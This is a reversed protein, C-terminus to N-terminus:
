DALDKVASADEGAGAEGFDALTKRIPVPKVFKAVVDRTDNVALQEFLFGFQKEWAETLAKRNAEPMDWFAKKFPGVAKKRTKYLFQEETDKEKREEACHDKVWTNVEEHLAPPIKEFAINQFSTALHVECTEYEPFKSFASEPLTSAGHQVAGGLGYDKRSILSLKKLTDFDVAVKAISGDPLVVGGHSTGTQLSIKSLGAANPDVRQLEERYLELYARLEEETSNHGGVEGIEGGISIQVGAPQNARIFATFDACLKSNIKQQERVTPQSLDVLTSTDIDINYFGAASAERILDQIAKIEPEPNAAYKKASVQFHDGQIFVPGNWGEAIAAALISSVYESPRQDTYNMESRAIEFILAGVKRAKAARLAARASDFGMVRLNMAPVTFPKEVLGKGRALYLENISAPVIGLTRATEWILWRAQNRETTSGFASARALTEAQAAVKASDRVALSGDKGVAVAEGYYKQVIQQPSASM